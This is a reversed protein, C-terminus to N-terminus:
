AACRLWLSWRARRGRWGRSRCAAYRALLTGRQADVSPLLARLPARVARRLLAPMLRHGLSMSVASRSRKV